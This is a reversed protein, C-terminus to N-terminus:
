LHYVLCRELKDATRYVCSDPLKNREIGFEWMISKRDVRGGLMELEVIIEQCLFIDVWPELVARLAFGM